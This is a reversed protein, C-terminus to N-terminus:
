VTIGHKRLKRSATSKDIGLAKALNTVSGEIAFTEQLLEKEFVSMMNDLSMRHNKSGGRKSHAFSHRNLQSVIQFNTIETSACNVMVREIINQLERVNGPWEYEELPKMAAPSIKKQMNYERNFQEVFYNALKRLDEKRERLPPLELLVVNLRYYLDERFLKNDVANRLNLNTATIIRVDVPITTKGGIRRIEKEQLVRLLKPQMQIPLDGIEDLFLTGHNALEFFGPKGEENAGTFAGKVYGFFESEMLNEPIAACNVKLYPMNKRSSNEYIMSAILEKGTGSEGTLMVTVDLKAARIAQGIVNHMVYSETVLKGSEKLEQKRIHALQTQYKEALAEQEKLLERLNITETIDRETCVVLSTNDNELIPISTAYLHGGEGLEQVISEEKKSELARLVSSDFLIYGMELLSNMNKGILDEKKLGGTKASEENIFIVNGEGDTIWIGVKVSDFIKQLIENNEKVFWDLEM